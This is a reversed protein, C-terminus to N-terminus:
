AEAAKIKGTARYSEREGTVPEIAGYLILKELCVAALHEALYTGEMRHGEFTERVIERFGLTGSEELQALIRKETGTM